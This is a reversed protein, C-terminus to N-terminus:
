DSKNSKKVAYIAFSLVIFCSTFTIVSQTMAYSFVTSKLSSSEDRISRAIANAQTESFGADVFDRNVLEIRKEQFENFNSEYNYNLYLQTLWLIVLFIAGLLEAKSTANMKM